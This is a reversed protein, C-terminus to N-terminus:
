AGSARQAAPRAQQFRQILILFEDLKRLDHLDPDAHIQDWDDYGLQLAQRLAQLAEPLLGNLTLSCALNYHVVNDRPVLRALRRDIELTQWILGNRALLEGQCRLVDVNNPAHDLISQYFEVAFDLLSQSEYREAISDPWDGSASRESHGEHPTSM